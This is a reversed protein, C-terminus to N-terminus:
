LIEIEWETESYTEREETFCKAYDATHDEVCYYVSLELTRLNLVAETYLRRAKYKTYLWEIDNFVVKVGDEDSGSLATDVRLTRCWGDITSIKVKDGDHFHLKLM